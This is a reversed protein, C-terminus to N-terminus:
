KALFRGMERLFDGTRDIFPWHGSPEINVIPVGAGQLLARTEESAGEPVGALYVTPVPLAALRAALDRPESLAVLEASNLHFARPDALRLSTYYGRMAPEQVGRAYIRDRLTGFGEALFDERSFELAQSSFVCDGPSKNGDVDVLRAVLDPHQEAHEELTLPDGACWPSRGYGLLDPVLLHYPAWNKGSWCTSSASGRSGWGM